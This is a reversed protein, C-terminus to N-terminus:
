VDRMGCPFEPLGWNKKESEQTGSADLLSKLTDAPAQPVFKDMSKTMWYHFQETDGCIKTLDGGADTITQLALLAEILDGTKEDNFVIATPAEADVGLEKFWRGYTTNGYDVTVRVLTKREGEDNPPGGWVRVETGGLQGDVIARNTEERTIPVAGCYSLEKRFAAQEGWALIEALQGVFQKPNEDCKATWSANDRKLKGLDKVWRQVSTRLTIQQSKSVEAACLLCKSTFGCRGEAKLCTAFDGLEM